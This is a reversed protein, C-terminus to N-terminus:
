KQFKKVWLEFFEFIRGSAYFNRCVKFIILITFIPGFSTQSVDPRIKQGMKAGTDIQSQFKVLIKQDFIAGRLLIETLQPTEPPETFNALKM